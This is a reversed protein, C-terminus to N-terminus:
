GLVALCYITWGMHLFNFLLVKLVFKSLIQGFLCRYLFFRHTALTFGSDSQIFEVLEFFTFFFDLDIEPINPHTNVKKSNAGRGQLAHLIQPFKLVM